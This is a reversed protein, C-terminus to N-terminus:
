AGSRAPSDRDRSQRGAPRQRRKGCDPRFGLRVVELEDRKVDDNLIFQGPM